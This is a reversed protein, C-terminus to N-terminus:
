TSYARCNTVALATQGYGDGDFDPYYTAAAGVLPDSENCDDWERWGDGDRDTDCGDPMGDADMDQADDFGACADVDGCFGDGDWDNLPDLPCPDLGCVRVEGADPRVLGLLLCVITTKGAGNPGIMGGIYGRPLSFSVDALSFGPYHKSVGRLELVSDM